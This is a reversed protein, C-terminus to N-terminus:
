NQQVLNNLWEYYKALIIEDKPSSHGAGDTFAFEVNVGSSILKKVFKGTLEFPCNLDNKGHYIFVPIDKFM